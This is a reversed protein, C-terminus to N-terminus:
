NTPLVPAVVVGPAVEGYAVRIAHRIDLEAGKMPAWERTELDFRLPDAGSAGLYVFAARGYRLYNGDFIEVPLFNKKSLVIEGDEDHEFRDDGHRITPTVPHNGKYAELSQGYNVEIKYVNLASRYKAGISAKDDGVLDKLKALRALRENKKFPYDAAIEREIGAVMKSLMPEIAKKTAPLGSIQARLFASQEDMNSAFAQKQAITLKKDAIRQLLTHYATENATQASATPTLSLSSVSATVMLSTAISAVCMLRMGFPVKVM